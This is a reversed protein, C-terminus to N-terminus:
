GPPLEPCTREYLVDSGIFEAWEVQSLNRNAMHCARTPWMETNVDWLIITTDRSGSALTQGDPSFDLGWVWDTHGILPPGLPQGTAADWLIITNDRSSSAVIQGDPSFVVGWVQDTHGTLPPGLPRRTEVDWLIVTKDNSASALTQGDPSFDLGWVWDTHDTLPPGLPQGTAVDWLIITNNAGSSALTQGDPSFTVHLVAETHGTLPPGLPQGTATNWLIITQDAGSSALTQGDPSFAVSSIWDTHGTLPSGLPQSTAVDWLIITSDSSGSALIKGDPSFALSLVDSTHGTLPPGLPQGTVVDWLIITDDDGGSALIKGDPSFVVSDVWETHAMLFRLATLDWLRITKSDIGSALTRGDPSFAVSSVREPNRLPLGLAQGTAVDWLIITNDESASALTQGDPSFAIHLVAETHGTLPPGLPQSTAVDWLIITSDGSGSALIKGDPSFTLSTVQNTHGALPFELPQGTAVDWLIITNDGSGSALTKGDPSFSVSKVGATHGTLPPGLPQGTAVDWLIVTNDDSASALIKGGTGRSEELTDPSFAVAQVQDTHGTLPAGLPQRTAVDWLIITNDGSGSALIKGDPSFSVSWVNFEHGSLPLGLSQGTAVDWLVVNYDRDGAALTKGDPSFAVSLIGDSQGHLTTALYPSYELSLLLNNRDEVRDSRHLAELSLLLGLDPQEDQFFISQAALQNSLAQQAHQEAKQQQIRAVIAAGVALLFVVALGAALWRLRRSARVQEEARQSEAEALAQAQALERQRAAEKEREIAETAARSAELFTRELENLDTPYTEAWEEAQALRAGHYLYSPDRHGEQWSDAAETLQRHTRLAARDEDIWSRLRAWGRILAEHSVDVLAEGRVMDHSTTVLRADALRQLVEEVTGAQQEDARPLLERKRARRRTDEAGEGPQTLRLMIRRVIAQKDPSFNAYLSDARQAIAGSVGGSAQYASLTLLRGQRREWLELLAHQLLPLSGPQRVVDALITSVLEPEFKLGVQRAPREIARRLEVENMPGVLVQRASIRGALDRYAACRHYFDARMTLVVIVRRDNIATAYLLNEIFRRREAENYCLTFVEEFQDVVLLLRQEPRADPWALRVARHLARGDAILDDRLRQRAESPEEKGALITALRVALEELPRSGPRMVQIIWDASGSVAGQRLAPVLGARVLSSKGSGSAGLVALFQAFRTSVSRSHAGLPELKEVLQPILAERGFYFEAHEEEFVQLGRYPCRTDLPLAMEAALLPAPLQIKDLTELLEQASQFRNAPDKELAKQIIQEVTPPLDSNISRPPPLPEDLHKLIIDIPTDGSFPPVGTTLEYLMVGLSYIDGREDGVEGSGQEPSMYTPTGIIIGSDALQESGVIKSLGFDTLIPQGQPTLLVNAPKLDRHVVGQHHAYAVAEVVLRFLSLAQDLSMRQGHAQTTILHEKLSEGPVLEIVMYFTNDVVDFDHVQVIGPHRLAAVIKAERQFRDVFNPDDALHPHIMKIAVDRELTPQFAKYVEAMAGRGLFEKIQYKGLQKNVWRTM